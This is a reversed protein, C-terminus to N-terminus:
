GAPGVLTAGTDGEVSRILVVQGATAVDRHVYGLAIARGRAPSWATSTLHGVERGAAVITAGDALHHDGPGAEIQMLRRVVRGGGRHLVRVIVEQGVYCGKSTSIARDLLGAELPITDVSMDLGFAPRGAEVRFVDATELRLEVAGSATLRGALAAQQRTPVFLDFAPVLAADTRAVVVEAHTVISRLALAAVVDPDLGVAQGIATAAQAGVVSLTATALTSDEVRVDEAFLLSEFRAALAPAIDVPVDAIWTLADRHYLALDTIMRGQPTLYAAYVGGHLGAAEVDATVLAQLFATSDRGTLTLRGRRHNVWWGAQARANRYEESLDSM